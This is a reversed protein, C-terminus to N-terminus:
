FDQRWYGQTQGERAPEGFNVSGTKLSRGLRIVVVKYGWGIFGEFSFLSTM